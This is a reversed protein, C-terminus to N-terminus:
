HSYLFTQTELNYVDICSNQGTSIALNEQSNFDVSRIPGSDARAMNKMPSKFNRIDWLYLKGDKGATFLMDDRIFKCSYIKDEHKTARSIEKMTKSDWIATTRDASCTAFMSGSRSVDIGYIGDKHAKISKLQQQDSFDWLKVTADHSVSLCTTGTSHLIAVGDVNDTHGRLQGTPQYQPIDM